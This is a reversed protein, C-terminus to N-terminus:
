DRPKEPIDVNPRVYFHEWGHVSRLPEGSIASTFSVTSLPEPLAEVEVVRVWTVYRYDDKGTCEGQTTDYEDDFPPAFEDPPALRSEGTIISDAKFRCKHVAQAYGYVWFFGQDRIQREYEALFEPKVGDNQQLWSHDHDKLTLVVNLYWKNPGSVLLALERNM